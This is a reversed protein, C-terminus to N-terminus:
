AANRDRGFADLTDRHFRHSKTRGAGGRKDPVIHGRSVHMLLAKPSMSLHAAAEATTYWTKSAIKEALERLAAATDDTKLAGM